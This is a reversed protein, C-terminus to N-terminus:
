KTKRRPRRNQAQERRTAWRRNDPEYNGDNDVRELTLTDAYGTSMNKWFVKLHLGNSVCLSGADAM